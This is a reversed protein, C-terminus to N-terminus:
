ANRRGETYEPVISVRRADLSVRGVIGKRSHGPLIVLGVCVDSSTAM